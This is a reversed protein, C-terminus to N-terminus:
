TVMTSSRLEKRHCHIVAQGFQTQPNKCETESRAQGCLHTLGLFPGFLENGNEVDRNNVCWIGIYMVYYSLDFHM